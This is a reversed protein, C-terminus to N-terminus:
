YFGFLLRLKDFFLHKLTIAFMVNEKKYDQSTGKFFFGASKQTSQTPSVFWLSVNM